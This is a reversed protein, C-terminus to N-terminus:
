KEICIYIQLLNNVVEMEVRSRIGNVRRVWEVPNEAKLKETVGEKKMIRKVALEVERHCEEDVEHLWQNWTGDRVMDLYQKRNQKMVYEGYMMGYKGINFDTEQELSIVPYYCGNEALRYEIGNEVIVKRLNEM